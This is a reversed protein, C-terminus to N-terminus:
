SEELFVHERGAAAIERDPHTAARTALGALLAADLLRCLELVRRWEGPGGAALIPEASPEFRSLLWGRPLALLAGRAEALEDPSRAGCVRELNERVVAYGDIECV